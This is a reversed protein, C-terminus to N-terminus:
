SLQCLREIQLESTTPEFSIHALCKKVSIKTTQVAFFAMKTLFLLARSQSPVKFYKEQKCGVKISHRYKTARPGSIYIGKNIITPVDAVSPALILLRNKIATSSAAQSMKNLNQSISSCCKSIQVVQRM